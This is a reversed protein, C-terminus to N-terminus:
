LIKLEHELSYIVGYTLGIVITRKQTPVVNIKPNRYLSYNTQLSRMRSIKTHNLTVLNRAM